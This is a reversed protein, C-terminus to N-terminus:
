KPNTNTMFADNHVILNLKLKKGNSDKLKLKRNSDKLLKELQACYKVLSNYKEELVEYNLRSENLEVLLKKGNSGKSKLGEYNFRSEQESHKKRHIFAPCEDSIPIPYMCHGHGACWSHDRPESYDRKIPPCDLFSFSCSM